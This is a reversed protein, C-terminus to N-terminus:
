WRLRLSVAVIGPSPFGNSGVGAASPRAAPAEYLTTRGPILADIGTGVAAWTGVSILALATHAAPCPGGPDEGPCDSMGATLIGTLAGFVTGIIAGNKLGDRKEIRRVSVADFRREIGSALIVLSDADLRLLKGQTERGTDDLVFVTQLRSSDLGPWGKTTEQACVVSPVLTVALVALYRTVASRDARSLDSQPQGNNSQM